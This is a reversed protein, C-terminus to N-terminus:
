EGALQRRIDDDPWYGWSEVIRGDVVRFNELAEFSIHRGTAPVGQCTGSHTGEFRIRTAVMDGEAFLDLITIKLDSFQGEVIKLINVADANSRASAPSHDVYDTAVCDMVYEYNHAEYGQEFFTKVVNKADDSVVDCCATLASGAMLLVAALILLLSKKM